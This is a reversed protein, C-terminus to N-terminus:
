KDCMWEEPILKKWDKHKPILYLNEYNECDLRKIFKRTIEKTLERRADYSSYLQIWPNQTSLAKEMKVSKRELISLQEELRNFEERLEQAGIDDNKLKSALYQSNVRAMQWFCDQEDRVLQHMMESVKGKGDASELFRKAASAKKKEEHLVMRTKVILSGIEIREKSMILSPYRRLVTRFSYNEIRSRDYCVMNNGTTKDFLLRSFMSENSNLPKSFKRREQLMKQVLEFEEKAIIPECWEIQEESQFHKRLVGTYLENRLIAMVRSTSWISNKRKTNYLGLKKFYATPTDVGQQILVKVIEIPNMGEKYMQFIEKVTKAAMEDVVLRREKEVTQYLYGYHNYEWALRFDKLGDLRKETVVRVKTKQFHAINEEYSHDCSCYDEDVVAVHIGAPLLVNMIIDVAVLPDRGFLYVSPIIVCEFGRMLADKKLSEVGEYNSKEKRDSYSNIIRWKKRKAYEKILDRQESIGPQNKEKKVYEVCKM